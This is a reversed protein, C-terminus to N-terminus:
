RIAGKELAHIGCISMGGPSCVENKLIGPHKGTQLVMKASGLTMQSAIKLSLDRPLGM